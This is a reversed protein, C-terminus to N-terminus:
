YFHNVTIICPSFGFNSYAENHRDTQGSRVARSMFNSIQSVKTFIQRYFELKVLIQYSYGIFM